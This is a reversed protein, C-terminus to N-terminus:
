METQKVTAEWTGEKGIGCECVEKVRRNVATGKESLHQQARSGKNKM